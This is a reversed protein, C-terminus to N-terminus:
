RQFLHVQQLLQHTAEAAIIDVMAQALGVEATLCIRGPKGGEVVGDGVKLLEICRQQDAGIHALFLRNRRM